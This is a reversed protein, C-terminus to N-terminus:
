GPKKADAKRKGGTVGWALLGAGAAILLALTGPEPVVTLVLDNGVVSLTGSYGSGIAGSLNSSSLSGTRGGAHILTYTGQGFGSLPTFNFSSFSQGGFLM